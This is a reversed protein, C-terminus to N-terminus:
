RDSAILTWRLGVWFTDVATTCVLFEIWRLVNCDFAVAIFWVHRTWKTLLNHLLSRTTENTLSFLHQKVDGNCKKEKWKKMQYWPISSPTMNDTQTCRYGLSTDSTNAIPTNIFVAVVPFFTITRVIGAIMGVIRINRFDRYRKANKNCKHQASELCSPM